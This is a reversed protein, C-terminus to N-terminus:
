WRTGDQDSNSRRCECRKWDGAEEDEPSPSPLGTSIIERISGTLGAPVDQQLMAVKLKPDRAIQGSDPSMQGSILKMLTTKGAGNRGLLGIHQGPEIQCSVEELLPPGQFRVSVERITLLPAM